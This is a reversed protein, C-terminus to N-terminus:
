KEGARNNPCEDAWHFPKIDPNTKRLNWCKECRKRPLAVDVPNKRPVAVPKEEAVPNAVPAQVSAPTEVKAEQKQAEPAPSSVMGRMLLGIILGLVLAVIFPFVKVSGGKTQKESAKKKSAGKAAATLDAVKKASAEPKPLVGAGLRQSIGFGLMAVTANDMMEACELRQANELSRRLALAPIEHFPAEGSTCVDRFDANGFIQVEDKGKKKAFFGDSGAIIWCPGSKPLPFDEIDMLPFDGKPAVGVVRVPNRGEVNPHNAPADPNIGMVKGDGTLKWVHSDGVNISFMKWGAGPMPSLIVAGCFTSMGGRFKSFADEHLKTMWGRAWVDREASNSLQALTANRLADTFAQVALGSVKLGEMSGGCGDAIVATWALNGDALCIRGAFGSDHNETYKDRSDTAWAALPEPFIPPQYEM